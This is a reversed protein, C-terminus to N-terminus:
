LSLVIMTLCSGLFILFRISWNWRGGITDWFNDDGRTFIHWGMQLNLVIDMIWFMSLSFLGIIISTYGYLTHWILSIFLVYIGVAISQSVHWQSECREILKLTKLPPYKMLIDNFLFHIRIVRSNFYKIFFFMLFTFLTLFGFNSLQTLVILYKM